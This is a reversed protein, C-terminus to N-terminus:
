WLQRLDLSAHTPCFRLEEGVSREGSEMVAAGQERAEGKRDCADQTRLNDDLAAHTVADSGRMEQLGQARISVPAQMANIKGRQPLIRIGVHPAEDWKLQTVAPSEM